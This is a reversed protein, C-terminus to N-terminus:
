DGGLIAYLDPEKLELKLQAMVNTAVAGALTSNDITKNDTVLDGTALDIHLNMADKVMGMVSDVTLSYDTSGSGSGNAGDKGHLSLLWAQETGTFGNNVAIQYASLGDKGDTGNAGDKGPAGDVGDKGPAGAPGTLGTDGKPGTAGDKGPLGPAGDAGDIGNTGNTGAKGQPGTLGIPGQIGQAGTSGKLSAIFEEETGTNGENLWIQYASLGNSGDKGNTGPLGQPGTAGDQGDSGNVGDKGAPGIPGQAGTLGTAGTAGTSGQDGKPGKLSSLYDALTGTNGASLWLDYASKGNTGNTGDKGPAGAQGTTGTAGTDGKDGKLSPLNATPTYKALQTSVFSSMATNTIFESTDPYSIKPEILKWMRDGDVARFIFGMPTIASYFNSGDTSYGISDGGGLGSTDVGFGVHAGTTPTPPEFPSATTASYDILLKGSKDLSKDLDDTYGAVGGTSSYQWVDYNTPEKSYNAIWRLVKDAVMLNDDFKSDYPSQSCYVGTNWGQKIWESRFDLFQAQWDGGIDGEIDLFMYADKALGLSKANSTSFAVEGTQGEYFHYGHWILGYEQAKAIHEKAYKEYKLGHSLQILVAKVGAKKFGAWDLKEPEQYMSLDIVNPTTAM